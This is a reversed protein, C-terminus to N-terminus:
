KLHVIQIRAPKSNAKAESEYKKIFNELSESYQTGTAPDVIMLSTGDGSGDGQIGVVLRAHIAFDDSLDEDTTVWIPGHDRMLREWGEVSLSQSYLFTLGADQLFQEKETAALGQDNRFKQLWRSGIQEMTQEITQSQRKNWSLMMTTVAAWCTMDSPQKILNFPGPVTYSVATFTFSPQRMRKIETLVIELAQYFEASFSHAQVTEPYEGHEFLAAEKKRRNILGNSVQTRNIYIWKNMEIPVKTYDGENLKRLLTSKAFAAVGINFVFSALADFQTQSLAVTVLRNIADEFQELRERLLETAREVSIGHKFEDPESGNCRGLHVLHGYGITCHGAKDDYLNAVFGESNKIFEIGRNSTRQIPRTETSSNSYSNRSPPVKTAVSQLGLERSDSNRKVRFRSKDSKLYNSLQIFRNPEM